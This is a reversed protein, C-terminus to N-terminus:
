LAVRTKQPSAPVCVRVSLSVSLADTQGLSVFMGSDVNEKCVCVCACVVMFIVSSHILVVSFFTLLLFHHHGNENQPFVVFSLLYVVLVALCHRVRTGM